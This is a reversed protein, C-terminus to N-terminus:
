AGAAFTASSKSIERDLRRNAEHHLRGHARANETYESELLDFTALAFRRHLGSQRRVHFRARRADLEDRRRPRHDRQAAHRHRHGQRHLHHGARNRRSECAWWKGTRGMGSQVEDAVLMIGHKRCIRQLGQLFFDAACARLRRRGSDARHFNGGSRRSRVLRKFIQEELQELIEAGCTEATIAM